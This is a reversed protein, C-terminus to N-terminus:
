SRAEDLKNVKNLLSKARDADPTTGRAAWLAALKDGITRAKAVEPARAKTTPIVQPDLKVHVAGRELLGARVPEAAARAEDRRDAPVRYRLRVEAGRLDAPDDPLGGWGVLWDRAGDPGARWEDEALFMPSCPTPIRRVDVLHPGHFEALVVSKEEVEGFTTRYPSGTYLIECGGYTWAQPKHIHGMLVLPCGLLALDSLGVNMSHGVMPQGVSTVSGDVMFHGLGIRPGDFDAVQADLGRMVNRLLDQATLDLEAPSMEACAAALTAREPWAMALVAAGGVYHVGAGTEVIIPHESELKAMLDIDLMRDHNGRTIVVPCVSAMARLWDAVAARERPTSAREYVDGACLFLDVREARATDVMFQHVKICESFRRHEDFHNDGSALVKM